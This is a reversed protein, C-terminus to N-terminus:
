HCNLADDFIDARSDSPSSYGSEESSLPIDIDLYLGISDLVLKIDTQRDIWRKGQSVEDMQGEGWRWGNTERDMERETDMMPTQGNTEKEMQKVTWRDRQGDTERDM